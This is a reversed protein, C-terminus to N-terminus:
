FLVTDVCWKCWWHSYAASFKFESDDEKFYVTVEGTEVNHRTIKGDWKVTRYKKARFQTGFAFAPVKVFTGLLCNMPKGLQVGDMDHEEHQCIADEIDDGVDDAGDDSVDSDDEREDDSLLDVVDGKGAAELRALHKSLKNSIVVNKLKGPSQYQSGFFQRKRRRQTTVALSQRKKEPTMGLCRRNTSLYIKLAAPLVNEKFELLTIGMSAARICVNLHDEKIRNRINSKIRTCTSFTREAEVSTVPLTLAIAVLIRISPLSESVSDWVTHWYRAMSGGEALVCEGASLSLGSSLVRGWSARMHDAFQQFESKLKVEDIPAKHLVSGLRVPIAYHNNLMRLESEGTKNGCKWYAPDLIRFATALSVDPFRTRLDEAVSAAVSKLDGLVLRKIERLEDLQLDGGAENLLTHNDLTVAESESTNLQGLFATAVSGYQNYMSRLASEATRVNLEM